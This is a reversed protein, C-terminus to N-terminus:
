NKSVKQNEPNKKETHRTAFKKFKKFKSIGKGVVFSAANVAFIGGLEYSIREFLVGIVKM